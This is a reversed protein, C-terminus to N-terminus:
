CLPIFMLWLICAKALWRRLVLKADWGSSTSLYYVVASIASIVLAIESFSIVHAEFIKEFSEVMILISSVVIILSVILM